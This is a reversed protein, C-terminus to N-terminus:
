ETLEKKGDNSDDGTGRPCKTAVESTSTTGTNLFESYSQTASPCYYGEPCKKNYKSADGTGEGCYFGSPCM